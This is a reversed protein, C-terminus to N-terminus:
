KEKDNEDKDRKIKKERESRVKGLVKDKIRDMKKM